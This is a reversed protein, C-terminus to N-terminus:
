IYHKIYIKFCTGDVETRWSFAAIQNHFTKHVVFSWGAKRQHRIPWTAHTFLSQIKMGPHINGKLDRTSNFYLLDLAFVDTLVLTLFYPPPQYIRATTTMKLLCWLLSAVKWPINGQFTLATRLLRSPRRRKFAINATFMCPLPQRDAEAMLAHHLIIIATSARCRCSDFEVKKVNIPHEGAAAQATSLAARKKKKKRRIMLNGGRM